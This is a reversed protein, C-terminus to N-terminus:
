HVDDPDDPGKRVYLCSAGDGRIYLDGHTMNLFLVPGMKFSGPPKGQRNKGDPVKPCAGAHAPVPLLVIGSGNGGIPKM